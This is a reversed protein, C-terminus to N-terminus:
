VVWWVTRTTRTCICYKHLHNSPFVGGACTAFPSVVVHALPTKTSTSLFCWLCLTCLDPHLTCLDPGAEPLLLTCSCGGDGCVLHPDAHPAIPTYPAAAIMAVQMIVVKVYLLWIDQKHMMWQKRWWKMWVLSTSLWHLCQIVPLPIQYFHTGEVM